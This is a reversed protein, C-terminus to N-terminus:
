AYTNVRTGKAATSDGLQQSFNAIARAAYAASGAAAAATVISTAAPSAANVPM